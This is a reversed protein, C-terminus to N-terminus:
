YEPSAIPNKFVQQFVLGSVSLGAGVFSALLIRPLRVNYLILISPESIQEGRIFKGLSFFVNKYETISIKFRGLFISLVFVLLFAILFLLCKHYLIKDIWKNKPVVKKM